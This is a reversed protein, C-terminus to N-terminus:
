RMDACSRERFGDSRSSVHGVLNIAFPLTNRGIEGRGSGRIPIGLRRDGPKFINDCVVLGVAISKLCQSAKVILAAVNGLGFLIRRAQSRQKLVVLWRSAFSLNALVIWSKPKALVLMQGFSFGLTASLELM